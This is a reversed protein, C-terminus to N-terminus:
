RGLSKSVPLRWGRYIAMLRLLFCLVLGAVAGVYSPLGLWTGAVVASGGALAAVAYLDSVLVTPVQGALVDRVMGGGVGTIMGLVAAMPWNVGYELAKQAGSVAFAGLGAADFLLVPEKVRELLPSALFAVLGAVLAVALAYWSAIADPPVAGILVDRVIGGSVATVFALVLVGFLDMGRRVGLTAGSSAFVFTGVLDLTRILLDTPAMVHLYRGAGAVAHEARGGDRRIDLGHSRSTPDRV